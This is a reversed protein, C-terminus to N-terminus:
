GNSWDFNYYIWNTKESRLSLNEASAEFSGQGCQGHRWIFGGPLDINVFHDERSVPNKFTDGRGEGVGEARLTSRPGSGKVTIKTKVLGKM